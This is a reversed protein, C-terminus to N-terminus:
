LRTTPVHTTSAHPGGPRDAVRSPEGRATLVRVAGYAILEAEKATRSQVRTSVRAYRIINSVARGYRYRDVAPIPESLNRHITETFLRV